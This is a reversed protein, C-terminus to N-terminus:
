QKKKFYKKKENKRSKAYLAGPSATCLKACIANGSFPLAAARSAPPADGHISGSM